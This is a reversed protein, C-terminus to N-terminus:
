CCILFVVDIDDHESVKSQLLKNLGTLKPQPINLLQDEPEMATYVDGADPVRLESPDPLIVIGKPM